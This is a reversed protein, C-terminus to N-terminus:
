RIIATPTKLGLLGLELVKSFCVGLSVILGTLNKDRNFVVLKSLAFLETTRGGFTSVGEIGTEIRYQEVLL